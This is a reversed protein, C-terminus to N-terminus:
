LSEKVDISSLTINILLGCTQSMWSLASPGATSRNHFGLIRYDQESAEQTWEHKSSGTVPTLQHDTPFNARTALHTHGWYRLSMRLGPNVQADEQRMGESGAILHRMTLQNHNICTLSLHGFRRITVTPHLPSNPLKLWREDKWKQHHKETLCTRNEVSLSLYLCIFSSAKFVWDSFDCDCSKSSSSSSNPSMSSISEGWPVPYSWQSWTM